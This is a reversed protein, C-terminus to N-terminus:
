KIERSQVQLDSFLYNLENPLNELNHFLYAKKFNNESLTKQLQVNNKIELIKESLANSNNSEFTLCNLNDEAFEKTQEFNSLVITKKSAGAEYIPRAQHPKTSPFVVLDTDMIFEEPNQVAPYFNIYSGLEHNNVYSILNKEYNQKLIKKLFQIISITKINSSDEAPNFHLFTLEVNEEKLINMAEIIVHAGKLKSIGGMYLIKFRESNTEYSKHCPTGFLEFDVKDTIVFGNGKLPGTQELDYKSIFAISNFYNRLLKKIAYTRIGLLGMAYTERHFCVTSVMMKKLLPGMWSMTMSNLAVIDPKEKEIIGKIDDWNNKKLIDFINKFSKPHFIFNESGSYHNIIVPNYDLEIVRVGINRLENVMDSPNNPCLVTLEYKDQMSLLAECIHLLSKGAGGIGGYHHLILIKNKM